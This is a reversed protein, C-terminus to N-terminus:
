EATRYLVTPVEELPWCREEGQGDRVRLYDTRTVSACKVVAVSAPGHDFVEPWLNQLAVSRELKAYLDRQQELLEVQQSITMRSDYNSM